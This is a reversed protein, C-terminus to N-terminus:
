PNNPNVVFSVKAITTDFDFECLLYECGQEGIGNTGLCPESLYYATKRWMVADPKGLLKEIDAQPLAYFCKGKSAIDKKMEDEHGVKFQYLGKKPDRSWYKEIMGFLDRCDPIQRKRAISEYTRAPPLLLGSTHRKRDERRRQAEMEKQSNTLSDQKAQTSIADMSCAASDLNPTAIAHHVSDSADIVSAANTGDDPANCGAVLFIAVWSIWCFRSTHM